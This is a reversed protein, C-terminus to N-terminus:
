RTIISSFIGKYTDAATQRRRRTYDQHRLVEVLMTCQRVPDAHRASGRTAEHERKQDLKQDFVETEVARYQQQATAHQMHAYARRQVPWQVFIICRLFIDQYLLDLFFHLFLYFYM